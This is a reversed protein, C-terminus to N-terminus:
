VLKQELEELSKGKTEPLYKLVLVLGIFAFAGYSMFTLAAGLNALEWPFVLQVLFSVLSNVVGVASIAIGRIHNPFIESFMVWMVPGLSMAFSAVFAIIGFLILKANIQSAEALIDSQYQNFQKDGLVGIMANKFAVDSDFQVDKVTAFQRAELGDYKAVVASIASDDLSYTAQKFGWACVTMSIIVGSLGIILLPKRGFRDITAMAVVTFVVNVIGIWVAQMFAANTGVGSQEFITPAYFFIVNIGTVQQAIGVILGIFIPFRMRHSFLFKLRTMLAEQKQGVSARIQALQETMQGTTFLRALTNEAEQQYGKMMLWRPSRPITFLLVFWLLAPVIEMGLMWRWLQQDLGLEAVLPLGSQSFQLLYYNSFYSVSFGLVINFQNVSVMKGRHEPASIEAIYIPAIMLSCFAMGGIFRAAILMWYDVALASALASILYLFAIIILTKRRGIADCIAGATFTAIIGGLTPSSVVFGQQWATLEFENAVFGVAGSIVSADFGFIFGGLSVILTYYLTRKNELM